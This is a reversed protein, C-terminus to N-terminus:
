ASLAPKYRPVVTSPQDPVSTSSYLDMKESAFFQERFALHSIGVYPDYAAQEVLSSSRETQRLYRYGMGSEIM